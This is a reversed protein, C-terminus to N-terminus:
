SLKITPREGTDKRILEEYYLRLRENEKETEEDPEEEGFSSIDSLPYLLRDKWRLFKRIKGNMNFLLTEKDALGEDLIKTIESYHAPALFPCSSRNPYFHNCETKLHFWHPVKGTLVYLRERLKNMKLDTGLITDRSQQKPQTSSDSTASNEWLKRAVPKVEPPADQSKKKKKRRPKKPPVTTEEVESIAPPLGGKDNTRCRGITHGYKNCKTCHKRARRDCISLKVGDVEISEPVQNKVNSYSFFLRRTSVSTDPYTEYFVDHIDGYEKLIIKMIQITYKPPVKTIMGYFIAPEKPVQTSGITFGNRAVLRRTQFTRYRIYFRRKDLEDRYIDEVEAGIYSNTTECWQKALSRRISAESTQFPARTIVQTRLQAQWVM